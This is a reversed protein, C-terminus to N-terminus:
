KWVDKLKIGLQEYADDPRIKDWKNDKLKKNEENTIIAIVAKDFWKKAEKKTFTKANKIENYLTHVTNKHEVITLGKNENIRRTREIGKLGIDTGLIKEAELSIKLYKRLGITKTIQRVDHVLNTEINKDDKYEQILNYLTLIYQIIIKEENEPLKEKWNKRTINEM